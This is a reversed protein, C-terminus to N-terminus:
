DKLNKMEQWLKAIDALQTLHILQRIAIFAGIIQINVEIAVDSNLVSSLQFVGHEAIAFPMYCIGGRKSTIFNCRLNNFEEDTHPYNVELFM